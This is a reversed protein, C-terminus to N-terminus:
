KPSESSIVIHKQAPLFVELNETGSDNSHNRLIVFLWLWCRRMFFGPVYFFSTRYKLFFMTLFFPQNLTENRHKPTETNRQKTIGGNLHEHFDDIEDKHVATVTDDVYRPWLPPTRKYTALAREAINQMIIEAVVVVSVPSDM